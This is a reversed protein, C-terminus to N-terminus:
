QLLVSFQRSSPTPENDNDQTTHTRARKVSDKQKKRNDTTTKLSNLETRRRNTQETAQRGAKRETQKM